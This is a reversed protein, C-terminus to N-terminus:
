LPKGLDWISGRGDRSFIKGQRKPETHFFLFLFGYMVFLHKVNGGLSIVATTLILHNLVYISDRGVSTTAGGQEWLISLQVRLALYCFWNNERSWIALIGFKIYHWRWCPKSTEGWPGDMTAVTWRSCTWVLLLWWGVGARGKQQRAQGALPGFRDKSESEALM